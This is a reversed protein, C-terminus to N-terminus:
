LSTRLCSLNTRQWDNGTYFSIARQNGNDALLQLRLLGESRSWAIIRGLLLAGVGRGRHHRDVIVDEVLGVRGGEATSILIQVTAMGVVSGNITAVVAHSRKSQDALLAELGQIQKERDAVFDSELSFLDALLDAMVPIDQLLATRILVDKIM